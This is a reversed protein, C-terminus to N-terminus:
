EGRDPEVPFAKSCSPLGKDSLVLLLLLGGFRLGAADATAERVRQQLRGLQSCLSLDVGPAERFGVFLLGPLM